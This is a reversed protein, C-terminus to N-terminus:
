ATMKGFDQNSNWSFSLPQLILSTRMSTLVSNLILGTKGFFSSQLAPAHLGHTLSLSLQLLNPQKQIPKLLLDLNASGDQFSLLLM